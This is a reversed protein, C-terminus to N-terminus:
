IIWKVEVCKMTLVKSFSLLYYSTYTLVNSVVYTIFYVIYFFVVSIKLGRMDVLCCTCPCKVVCTKYINFDSRSIVLLYLWLKLIETRQIKMEDHVTLDSWEILTYSFVNFTSNVIFVILKHGSTLTLCPM